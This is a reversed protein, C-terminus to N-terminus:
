SDFIYFSTLNVCVYEITYHGGSSMVHSWMERRKRSLAPECPPDNMSTMISIEKFKSPFRTSTILNSFEPPSIALSSLRMLEFTLM